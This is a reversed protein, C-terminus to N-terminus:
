FLGWSGRICEVATVPHGYQRKVVARLSRQPLTRVDASM